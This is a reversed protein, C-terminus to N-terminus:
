KGIIYSKIILRKGSAEREIERVIKIKINVDRGLFTKLDAQLRAEISSDFKEEPVVLFEVENIKDQIAQYERIYDIYDNLVFLFHGLETPSISKGSPTLLSETSRGGIKAVIPFARGCSCQGGWIAYDGTDYRIFPMTYNHLDTIVIKGREGPAVQKGNQGVVELYVLETNIHFGEDSEPCSQAVSGTFERSGYRNVVRCGFANEIFSKEVPLLTESTSIISKLNSPLTLDCKELEKALRVVVSAYSEIYDPNFRIISKLIDKTNKQTIQFSSIHYTKVPGLLLKVINRKVLSLTLPLTASQTSSISRSRPSCIWVRRSAPPIGAWYNFFSRAAQRVSNASKDVFFRFPAGTSGSTSDLRFREASINQAKVGEPFNRKLDEKTVIPFKQLDEISHFDQPTIGCEAFTTKYFPVNDYAHKLIRRVREECRKLLVEPDAFQLKGWEKVYKWFDNRMLVKVLYPYSINELFFVYLRNSAKIM